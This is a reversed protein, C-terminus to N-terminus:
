AVEVAAEAEGVLSRAKEDQAKREDENLNERAANAATATWQRIRNISKVVMQRWNFMASRYKRDTIVGGYWSEEMLATLEDLKEILGCVKEAKPTRPYLVSEQHERQIDSVVGSDDLAKGYAAIEDELKKKTDALEADIKENLVDGAEEDWVYMLVNAIFLTTNANEWSRRLAEQAGRTRLTMPRRIASSPFANPIFDKKKAM